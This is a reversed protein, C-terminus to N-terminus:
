PTVGKMDLPPELPELAKLSLEGFYTDLFGVYLDDEGIYIGLNGVGNKYLKIETDSFRDGLERIMQELIDLTLYGGKNQGSASSETPEMMKGETIVM